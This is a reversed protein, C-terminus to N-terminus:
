QVQGQLVKRGTGLARGSTSRGQEGARQLEWKGRRQRGKGAGPVDQDPGDERGRAHQAGVRVWAPTPCRHDTQAGGQRGGVREALGGVGLGSM